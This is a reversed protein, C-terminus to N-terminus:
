SSPRPGPKNKRRRREKEDEELLRDLEEKSVRVARGLALNFREMKEEPTTASDVKPKM